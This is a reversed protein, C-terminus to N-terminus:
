PVEVFFDTPIYPMVGNKDSKSLRDLQEDDIKGKRIANIYRVPWQRSGVVGYDDTLSTNIEVQWPSTGPKLVDLMLKRSWIAAQLSMNYQTDPPTYVIDYHEIPPIELADRCDGRAHLRDNTLDFRIVDGAKKSFEHFLEVARTDVKRSLWYDELMLVFFEDEIESLLKILADSWKDQPYDQDDISHFSFNGPLSFKPPSFGAVLVPQTTDWYINFLRSFPKLAWRYRDSTLVIVRLPM